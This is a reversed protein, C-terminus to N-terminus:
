LTSWPHGSSTGPVVTATRRLADEEVTLYVSV